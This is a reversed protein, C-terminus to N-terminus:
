GGARGASLGRRFADSGTDVRLLEQELRRAMEGNVGRDPVARRRTAGILYGLQTAEPGNPRESAAASLGAATDLLAAGVAHLEGSDSTEDLCGSLPTRDDLRVARPASRLAERVAQEGQLCAAPLHPEEERGCGALGMLLLCGLVPLASRPRM